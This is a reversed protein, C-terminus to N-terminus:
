GAYEPVTKRNWTFPWKKAMGCKWESWLKIRDGNMWSLFRRKSWCTRSTKSWRTRSTSWCTRSDTGAPSPGEWVAMDAHSMKWCSPWAAAAHAGRRWRTQWYGAAFYIFTRAFRCLKHYIIIAFIFLRHPPNVSHSLLKIPFWTLRCRGTPELGMDEALM